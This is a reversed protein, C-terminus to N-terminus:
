AGFALTGVSWRTWKLVDHRGTSYQEDLRLKVKEYESCQGCFTRSGADGVAGRGSCSIAPVLDWPVFSCTPGAVSVLDGLEKSVAASEWMVNGLAGSSERDPPIVPLPTSLRSPNPLCQERWSGQCYILM